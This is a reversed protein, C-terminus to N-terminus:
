IRKLVVYKDWDDRVIIWKHYNNLDDYIQGVELFPSAGPNFCKNSVLSTAQWFFDFKEYVEFKLM